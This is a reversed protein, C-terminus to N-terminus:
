TIEVDAAVERLSPDARVAERTYTVFAAWVFSELADKLLELFLRRRLPKDRLTHLTDNYTDKYGPEKRAASIFAAIIDAAFYAFARVAIPRSVRALWTLIRIILWPM